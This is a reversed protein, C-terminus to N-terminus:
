AIRSTREPQPRSARFGLQAARPFLQPPEAVPSWEGLQPLGTVDRSILARETRSQGDPTFAAQLRMERPTPAQSDPPELVAPASVTVSVLCALAPERRLEAELSAALKECGVGRIPDDPRTPWGLPAHLTVFEHTASHRLTAFPQPDRGSPRPPEDGGVVRTRGAALLRSLVASESLSLQMGSGVRGAARQASCSVGACAAASRALRSAGLVGAPLAANRAATRRAHRLNM